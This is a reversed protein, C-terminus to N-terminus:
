LYNNLVKGMIILICGCIVIFSLIIQVTNWFNSHKKKKIIKHDYDYTNTIKDRRKLLRAINFIFLVLVVAYVIIETYYEM